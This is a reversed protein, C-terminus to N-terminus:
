DDVQSGPDIRLRSLKAWRRQLHGRLMYEILITSVYGDVVVAARDIPPQGLVQSASFVVKDGRQFTM